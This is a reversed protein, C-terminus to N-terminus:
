PAPNSRERSEGSATAPRSFEISNCKILDIEGEASGGPTSGKLRIPEDNEEVRVECVNTSGDVLKIEAEVYGDEDPTDSRFTIKSIKALLIKITAAGERTQLFGKTIKVGSWQHKKGLLDEIKAVVQDPGPVVQDSSPNTPHRPPRPHDERGAFCFTLSGFILLGAVILWFNDSRLM